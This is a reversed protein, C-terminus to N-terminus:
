IVIYRRRLESLNEMAARMEAREIRVTMVIWHRQDRSTLEALRLTDAHDRESPDEALIGFRDIWLKVPKLTLSREPEMLYDSLAQVIRRPALADTATRLREQLDDLKPRFPEPGGGRAKAREVAQAERLEAIESRQKDVQHVFGGLLSDFMTDALRRQLSPLDPSPETLTHDSFSLAKQPRDHQIIEGLARSGFGATVNRRMGLLAHCDDPPIAADTLKGALYDRVCQSAGLMTEIDDASGFLARVLPDGAFAARSIRFPGPVALAVRECYDYARKVAPALTKAYGGSQRILPDVMGVAREVRELAFTDPPSPKLWDLIGM